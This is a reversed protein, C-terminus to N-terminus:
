EQWVWRIPDGFDDKLLVRKPKPKFLPTPKKHVRREDIAKVEETLPTRTQQASGNSAFAQTFNQGIERGSLGRQVESVAGGGTIFSAIQNEIEQRVQAKTKLPKV